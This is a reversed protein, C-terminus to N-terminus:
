SVVWRRPAPLRMSIAAAAAAAVANRGIRTKGMNQARSCRQHISRPSLWLVWGLIAPLSSTISLGAVPLSRLTM